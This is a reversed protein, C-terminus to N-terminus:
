GPLNIERQSYVLRWVRIDASLAETVKVLATEAQARSLHTSSDAVMKDILSRVGRLTKETQDSQRAATKFDGVAGIGFFAAGFAPLAAGLLTAWPKYELYVFKYIQSLHVLYLGYLFLYTLGSLLTVIFCFTGARHLGHEIKEMLHHNRHHYGRQGSNLDGIEETAAVRLISRLSDPDQVGSPPGLERWTARIYWSTWADGENQGAGVPLASPTAGIMAMLRTPRLAEAVTRAELWREHWRASKGRVVVAIIVVIVLPELSIAVVKLASSDWDLLAVLGLLVSLAALLFNTVYTSRYINSYHVAV